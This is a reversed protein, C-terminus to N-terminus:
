EDGLTDVKTFKKWGEVILMGISAVGAIIGAFILEVVNLAILLVAFFLGAAAAVMIIRRAMETYEPNAFMIASAAFVFCVLMTVSVIAVIKMFPTIKLDIM